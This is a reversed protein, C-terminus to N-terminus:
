ESGARRKRRTKRSYKCVGTKQSLFPVERRGESDRVLVGGRVRGKVWRDMGQIDFLYSPPPPVQRDRMKKKM